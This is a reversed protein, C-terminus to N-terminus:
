ITVLFKSLFGKLSDLNKHNFDFFNDLEHSKINTIAKYGKNCDYCIYFGIWDKFFDKDKVVKNNIKVCEQWANLCDAIPSPQKKISKLLGELNNINNSSIFFCILQSNTNPLSYFQSASLITNVNNSLELSQNIGANIYNLRNQISVNDLDLIIGIKNVKDQIATKISASLKTADINNNAQGDIGKLVIIQYDVKNLKSIEDNIIKEFFIQDTIGEVIIRYKM